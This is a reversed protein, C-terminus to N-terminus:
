RQGSKWSTIDDGKGYENKKNKGNSWVAVPGGIDIGSIVINSVNSDAIAIHYPNGWPDMVQEYYQEINLYFSEHDEMRDSLIANRIEVVM